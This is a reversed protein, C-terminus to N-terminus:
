TPSEASAIDFNQLPQSSAENQRRESETDTDAKSSSSVQQSKTYAEKGAASISLTADADKDAVSQKTELQHQQGLTQQANDDRTIKQFAALASSSAANKMAISTISMHFVKRSRIDTYVGSFFYMFHNLDTFIRKTSKM